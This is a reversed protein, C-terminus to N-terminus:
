RCLKKNEILSSIIISNSFISILTKYILCVQKQLWETARPVKIAMNTLYGRYPGRRKRSTQKNM